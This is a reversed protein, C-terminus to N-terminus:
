HLFFISNGNLHKERKNDVSRVFISPPVLVISWDNKSLPIVVTPDGSTSSAEEAVPKSTLIM